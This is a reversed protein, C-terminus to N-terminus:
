EDGPLDDYAVGLSDLARKAKTIGARAEELGYRTIQPALAIGGHARAQDRYHAMNRRHTTLLTQWHEADRRRERANRAEQEAAFDRAPTPPPGLSRQPEPHVIGLRAEIRAVDGRLNETRIILAPDASIGYMALQMESTHLLRRKLKLEEQLQGQYEEDM